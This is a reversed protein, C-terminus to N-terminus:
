DSHSDDFMTAVFAISLTPLSLIVSMGPPLEIKCINQFFM